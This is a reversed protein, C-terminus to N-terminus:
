LIACYLIYYLCTFYSAILAILAVPAFCLTFESSFSILETQSSPFTLFPVLSLYKFWAKFATLFYLLCLLVDKTERLNIQKIQFTSPLLFASLIFQEQRREVLASRLHGCHGPWALSTLLGSGWEPKGTPLLPWATPRDELHTLLSCSCFRLLWSESRCEYLIAANCLTGVWREVIGAWPFCRLCFVILVRPPSPLQWCSLSVQLLISLVSACRDHALAQRLFKQPCYLPMLLLSLFVM